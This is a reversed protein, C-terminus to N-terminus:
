ECQLDEIKWVRCMRWVSKVCVALLEVIAVIILAQRYVAMLPVSSADILRVSTGMGVLSDSCFPWSMTLSRDAAM